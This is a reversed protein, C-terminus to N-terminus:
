SHFELEGDSWVRELYRSSAFFASTLLGLPTLPPTTCSLGDAEVVAEALELEAVPLFDAATLTLAATPEPAPSIM